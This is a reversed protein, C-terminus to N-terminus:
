PAIKLLLLKTKIKKCVQTLLYDSSVVTKQCFSPAPISCCRFHCSRNRTLEIMEVPQTKEFSPITDAKTLFTHKKTLFTCLIERVYGGFDLILSEVYAMLCLFALFDLIKAPFLLNLAILACKNSM